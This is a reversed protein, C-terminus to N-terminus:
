ERILSAKFKVPTNQDSQFRIVTTKTEGNLWGETDPQHKYVTVARNNLVGSTLTKATIRKDLGEFVLQINGKIAKGSHNTVSVSQVREGTALDRRFGSFKISLGTTSTSIAKSAEAAVSYGPLLLLPACMVIAVTHLTILRSNNNINMRSDM